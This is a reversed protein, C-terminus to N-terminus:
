RELQSRIAGSPFETTHVNVYYQDPHQRIAKIVTKSIGNVCGKANGDTLTTDTDLAV